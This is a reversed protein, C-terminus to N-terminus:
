SNHLTTPLTYFRRFHTPGYLPASNKPKPFPDVVSLVQLIAVDADLLVVAVKVVM